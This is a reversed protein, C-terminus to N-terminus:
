AEMNLAAIVDAGALLQRGLDRAVERPLRVGVDAVTGDASLEMIDAAIVVLGVVTEGEVVAVSAALQEPDEALVIGDYVVLREPTDDRSVEGAGGSAAPAPLLPLSTQVRSALAELNEVDLEGLQSLVRQYDDRADRGGLLRLFQALEQHARALEALLGLVHALEAVM